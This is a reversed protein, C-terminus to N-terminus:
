NPGNPSGLFVPTAIVSSDAADVTKVIALGAFRQTGGPPRFASWATSTTIWRPDIPLVLKYGGFSKYVVPDSQLDGTLRREGTEFEEPMPVNRTRFTVDFSTVVGTLSDSINSIDSAPVARVHLQRVVDGYEVL